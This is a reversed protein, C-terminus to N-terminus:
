CRRGAPREVAAEIRRAGQSMAGSASFRGPLAAALLEVASQLDAIKGAHEAKGPVACRAAGTRFRRGDPIARRRRRARCAGGGAARIRFAIRGALDPPHGRPPGRPPADSCVTGAVAHRQDAVNGRVLEDLEQGLVAGAGAVRPLARSMIWREFHPNENTQLFWDLYRDGPLDQQFWAAHTPWDAQIKAWVAALPTSAVQGEKADKAWPACNDRTAIMTEAWTAQKAYAQNPDLAKSEAAWSAASPLTDHLMVAWVPSACLATWWVAKASM